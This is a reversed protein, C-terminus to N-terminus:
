LMCRPPRSGVRNKSRLETSLFQTSFRTPGSVQNQGFDESQIFNSIGQREELGVMRYLQNASWEVISTPIKDM